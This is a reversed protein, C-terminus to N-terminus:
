RLSNFLVPNLWDFVFDLLAQITLIKYSATLFYM